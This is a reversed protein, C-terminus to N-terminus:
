QNKKLFLSGLPPLPLNLSQPYGHMPIPSSEMSNSIGYGSGGFDRADSNLIITWVGASPIGVRYNERPVPTFNFIALIAELNTPSDFRLLSVVSNQNDDCSVWRFGRPDFDLKHLAPESRYLRNLEAILNQIGAHSEFATLNWDLSAEHYWEDWQGFEGGMFLIKKGSQAFMYSYLLRLNAFKQWDDGPMQRLLSGKGYVVEDHSLPLIFNEFFAYIMRFTLDQQHHKRHVPERQFYGLTDHMWGMDWKLGFGLGGMDTPRSVMPWATSEEAITQIGPFEAYLERNLRRLFSIAELNERGGFQNPIWEGERRSYDLYLMSAVADVRIADAHYKDLWFRASSILFSQVESRGYNFIYSKWDPHFGKRSDTHEFLHSGDFLGLGYEDTPFHSPVWDLIVGIGAQHLADILHMLDQPTGYRSTPSFYGTTQYGWSGYFPHEMLPLFEVHTFGMKLVYEVLHTALERYTLPRNGEEPVRRWSGLHVEYISIPADLANLTAREAMWKQDQWQYDLDWVLSATRPPIEGTFAFPDAKDVRYDNHKSLIHYKYHCGPLIGPVFGEWIGSDARSSLPHNSKDWYNFDGMVWVREADPAWVAFYTGVVGDVTMPHAGLHEYLRFHSGENFLHLDLDTLLSPSPTKFGQAPEPPSSHSKPAINNRLTNIDSTISKIKPDKAVEDLPLKARRQWNPRQSSTGPVNQPLLEGWLDELNVLVAPAPSSAMYKLFGDLIEPENPNEGILRMKQLGAILHERVAGRREYEAAAAEPEFVGLEAQDRIDLGHWYAAFPPMDHTNLSAVSDSPIQPLADNPRPQVEFQMVFMRKMGRSKLEARVEDPVVGLDEGVIGVGAQSAELCLIAYPEGAPYRIYVGDRADMGDPIIFLRHLGMVHDLRLTKAFKLHHRLVAIFYDYHTRRQQEPHIPPFGWNQGLMFLPDPPAGAAAGQMFLKRYRFTDYGGPHVGIPLDLYIGVGSKEAIAKQRGLQKDAIWQVYIHYDLNAPDYDQNNFKGDQLRQPWNRWDASLKETVARFRAYDALNNDTSTVRANSDKLGAVVSDYFKRFERADPTTATHAFRSLEILIAHKAKMVRRYDILGSRRLENLENQFERSKLIKRASECKVTEPIADVDIFIENWFLRSVPAYPSFDCPSDLYGALLPLTAAITGGRTGVWEAFKGFSTFDGIGWDTDRKLAYAPIFAGWQPKTPLANSLKRPASVVLTEAAHLNADFSLRYYGHPLDCAVSVQKHIRRPTLDRHDEVAPNRSLDVELQRDEDPNAENTLHLHLTSEALTDPLRLNLLFGKGDWAVVVPALSQSRIETERARIADPIDAPDQVPARLVQLTALLAEQSATQLKGDLDLYSAQVGYLDALRLLGPDHSRDTM